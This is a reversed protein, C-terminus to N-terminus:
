WVFLCPGGLPARGDLHSLCVSPCTTGRVFGSSAGMFPPLMGTTHVLGACLHHQHIISLAVYLLVGSCGDVIQASSSYFGTRHTHGRCAAFPSLLSCGGQQGAPPPLTHKCCCVAVCAM